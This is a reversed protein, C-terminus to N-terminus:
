NFTHTSCVPKGAAQSTDGGRGKGSPQSFLLPNADYRRPAPIVAGAVALLGQQRTDEARGRGFARPRSNQLRALGLARAGRCILPEPPPLSLFFFSPPLNDFCSRAGEGGVGGEAAKKGNGRRRRRWWRAALFWFSILSPWCSLM